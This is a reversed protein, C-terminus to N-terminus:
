EGFTIIETKEIADDILEEIPLSKEANLTDPLRPKTVPHDPVFVTCCDEYPRISTEYTGIKKAIDIIEVKDMTILPRLVPMNIVENIVSMSELTQSAVQGVNEGTILVKNNHKQAIKAAM